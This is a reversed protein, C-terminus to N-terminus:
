KGNPLSVGARFCINKSGTNGTIESTTRSFGNLSEIWIDNVYITYSFGENTSSFNKRVVTESVLGDAFIQWINLDYLILFL